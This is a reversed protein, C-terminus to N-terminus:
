AETEEPEREKRRLLFAALSLVLVLGGLVGLEVMSDQFAEGRLEETGAIVVIEKISAIIGVLLFPEAVLGRRRMTTRVASLLEVFIFTLLLVDLANAAATDIGDDLGDVLEYVAQGVLLASGAWLIVAIAVYIATEGVWLVHDIRRTGSDM